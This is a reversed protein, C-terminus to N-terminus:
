PLMVCRQILGRRAFSVLWMNLTKRYDCRVFPVQKSGRVVLRIHVWGMAGASMRIPHRSKRFGLTTYWKGDVVVVTCYELVPDSCLVLCGGRTMEWGIVVLAYAGM